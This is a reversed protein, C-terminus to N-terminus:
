AYKLRLKEKTQVYVRHLGVVSSVSALFGVMSMSFKGAWLIGPPFWNVACLLNTVSGLLDLKNFKEELLVKKVSEQIEKLVESNDNRLKSASLEDLLTKKKMKLTHMKKISIICGLVLSSAWIMVSAVSWPTPSKVDIIKAEGAWAIHEVPFFCQDCINKAVNLWRITADKEQKGLGYHLTWALMPIDDFLRLVTRAAALRGVVVQLRTSMGKNRREVLGAALMAGFCATRMVKDRGRYSDLINVTLEM